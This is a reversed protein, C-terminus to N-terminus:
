PTIRDLRELKAQLDARQEALRRKMLGIAALLAVRNLPKRAAVHALLAPGASLSLAEFDAATYQEFTEAAAAQVTDALDPRADLARWADTTM